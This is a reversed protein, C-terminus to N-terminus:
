HDPIGPHEVEGGGVRRVLNRPDMASFFFFPFINKDLKIDRELVIESRYFPDWVPISLWGFRGSRVDRHASFRFRLVLIFHSPPWVEM